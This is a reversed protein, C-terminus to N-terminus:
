ENGDSVTLNTVEGDYIVYNIKNPNCCVICDYIESNHGSFTESIELDVEFQEFCFHCIITQENM